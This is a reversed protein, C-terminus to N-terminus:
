ATQPRITMTGLVDFRRLILDLLLRTSAKAKERRRKPGQLLIQGSGPTKKPNLLLFGTETREMYWPVQWM